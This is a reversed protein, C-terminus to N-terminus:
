WRLHNDSFQPGSYGETEPMAVFGGVLAAAEEAKEIGARRGNKDPKDHDACIVIRAEPMAERVVSAVIPLNGASFAVFCRYGTTEYVTAASAYGEALCVTETRQGIWHFLGTVRGASLFDKGRELAPCYEPFIAQVNWLAGTADRMPILLVDNVKITEFSGDNQYNRRTWTALQRLGHVGVGKRVLYPHNPNAPASQQWLARAREAAKAQKAQTEQERKAKNAEIERRRREREAPDLARVQSFQRTFGSSNSAPM